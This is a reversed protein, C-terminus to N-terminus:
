KDYTSYIPFMANTKGAGYNVTEHHRWWSSVNKRQANSAMQAPLEGVEPSNGACLGTVRLESTKNSRRRFLHNLLCDHPQRDYTKLTEYLLRLSTIQSAITGM